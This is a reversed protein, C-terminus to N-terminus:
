CVLGRPPRPPRKWPAAAHLHVQIRTVAPDQSKLFSLREKIGNRVLYGRCRAQLRAILSENARWLQERNYATTVGSVM